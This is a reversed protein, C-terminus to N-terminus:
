RVELGHFGYAAAEARLRLRLWRISFGVGIGLGFAIGLSIPARGEDLAKPQSPIPLVATAVDAGELRVLRHVGLVAPDGANIEVIAANDNPGTIVAVYLHTTFPGFALSPNENM